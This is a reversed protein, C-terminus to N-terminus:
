IIRVSMQFGRNCATDRVVCCSPGAGAPTLVHVTAGADILADRPGTVEVQEVGDAALIGVREETSAKRRADTAM